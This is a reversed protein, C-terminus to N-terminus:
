VNPDIAPLYTANQNFFLHQPACEFQVISKHFKKAKLRECEDCEGSGDFRRQAVGFLCGAVFRCLLRLRDGLPQNPRLGDRDRSREGRRYLRDRDREQDRGRARETDRLREGGLFRFFELEGRCCLM